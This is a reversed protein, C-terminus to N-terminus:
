SLDHTFNNSMQQTETRPHQSTFYSTQTYNNLQCNRMMNEEYLQEMNLNPDINQEHEYFDDDNNVVAAMQHLQNPDTEHDINSFEAQGGPILRVDDDVQDQCESDLAQNKSLIQDGQIIDDISNLGEM